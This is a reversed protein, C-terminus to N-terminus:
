QRVSKRAAPSRLPPQASGVVVRYSGNQKSVAEAAECIADLAPIM